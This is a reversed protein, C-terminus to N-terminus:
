DERNWLGIIAVNASVFDPPYTSEYRWKYGYKFTIKDLTYHIENPLDNVYTKHVAIYIILKNNCAKVVKYPEGIKDKLEYLFDKNLTDLDKMNDSNDENNVKM